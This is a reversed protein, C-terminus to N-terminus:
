ELSRVYGEFLGIVKAVPLGVVNYYCGSIRDVFAMARGQIAYSGAKDRYEDLALYPEIEDIDIKRFFVDTCASAAASFARAKCVLAIGTVVVHRSGSLATLMARAEARNAPKGLTRRGQVVVTDAGLVLAQPYAAAVSDAKAKALKKLSAPLAETNIYAAEDIQAPAVTKFIFGMQAMIAKRRPSKSALIVARGPHQWTNMTVMFIRNHVNYPHAIKPMNERNKEM